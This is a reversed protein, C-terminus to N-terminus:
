SAAPRDLMETAQQVDDTRVLLEVSSIAPDMGGANDARIMSDIGAESLIGKAIEAEATSGFTSVVVLASPTMTRAGDEKVLARRLPQDGRQSSVRDVRGM